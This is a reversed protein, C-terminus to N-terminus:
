ASANCLDTINTSLTPESTCLLWMWYIFCGKNAVLRNGRGTLVRQRRQLQASTKGLNGWPLTVWSVSYAKSVVQKIRSMWGHHELWQWSWVKVQIYPRGDSLLYLPKDFLCFPKPNLDQQMMTTMTDKSLVSLGLNSGIPQCLRAHCCGGMLAYIHTHILPWQWASQHVTFINSFIHNSHLENVMDERKHVSSIIYQLVPPTSWMVQRGNWKKETLDLPFLPTDWSFLLYIFLIFLFLYFTKKYEM